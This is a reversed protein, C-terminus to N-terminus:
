RDGEWPDQMLKDIEGPNQYDDPEEAFEEIIIQVGRIDPDPQQNYHDEVDQPRDGVLAGELVLADLLPKMGGILNGKDRLKQHGGFYRTIIVRRKKDARTVKEERMKLAVFLRLTDRLAKYRARSSRAASWKNDPSWAGRNSALDNQSPVDYAVFLEWRQCIPAQGDAGCYFCISSM